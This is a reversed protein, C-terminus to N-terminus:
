EAAYEDRRWKLSGNALRKSLGTLASRISDGNHFAVVQVDEIQATVVCMVDSGDTAKVVLKIQLMQDGAHWMHWIKSDLAFLAKGAGVIERDVVAQSALTNGPVEPNKPM